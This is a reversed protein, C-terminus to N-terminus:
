VTERRVLVAIEGYVVITRAIRGILSGAAVALMWGIGPSLLYAALPFVALGVIVGRGYSWSRGTAFLTNFPLSAAQVVAFWLCVKMLPLGAIYKPIAIPVLIELLYSVVLIIAAMFGTLGATLGILRAHARRVSGERAFDEVVRPMLVLQVAQPLVSMGERLVAAVSYLGLGSVGGLALMLAGETAVWISSNLSGWISFPLGVSIIEKLAKAEFHYSNKLPRSKHLLWLGVLPTSSSRLCLGYFHLWPIAFTLGFNLITQALQIRALSVFQNITRYTAGLFGGYFIGWCVFAQSLWGAFGYLDHRLLSFGACILFGGSVLISVGLNWAGAASALAEVKEPQDKGIYYPIQRWLGDFTGMHLFTLYMLPITYARFLGTEEPGLFRAVLLGGLVGLVASLLNGGFIAAISRLVPRHSNRVGWRNVIFERINLAYEVQAEIERQHPLGNGM